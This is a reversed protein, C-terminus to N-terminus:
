PTGTIETTDKFEVFNPPFIPTNGNSWLPMLLVVYALSEPARNAYEAM